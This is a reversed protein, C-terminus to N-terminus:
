NKEVGEGVDSKATKRQKWAFNAGTSFVIVNLM